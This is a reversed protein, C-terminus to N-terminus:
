LIFRPNRFVKETREFCLINRSSFIVHTISENSQKYFFPYLFPLVYIKKYLENWNKATNMSNNQKWRIMIDPQENRKINGGIIRSALSEMTGVITRSVLSEMIDVLSQVMMDVLSQVMIEMIVRSSGELLIGQCLLMM